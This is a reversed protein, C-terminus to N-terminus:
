LRERWVGFKERSEAVCSPDVDVCLATEEDGACALVTGDPAIVTSGGAYEVAPDSGTRNVGVVLAQNEIARACLLTHWHDQRAAPFNATVVYVEAGQKLGLHFDEPFRIDYCILPCVSLGAWDFTVVKDGAPFHEDEQMPTFPHRKTYRAIEDGTPGFAIAQNRAVGQGDRSTVGALLTVGRTAALEACFRLTTGGGPETAPEADMVYGVDFMEPLAVLAGPRVDAADLLETVRRHNAPRDLWAIDLQVAVIQM